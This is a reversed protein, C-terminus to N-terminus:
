KTDARVQYVEPLVDGWWKTYIEEYTGDEVLTALADNFATRLETDGSRFGAGVPGPAFGGDVMEVQEGAATASDHLGSLIGVTSTVADAEGRLLAQLAQPWSQYTLIDVPSVAAKLNDAEVSGQALAVTKGKVDAVSSIDSGEPVLLTQDDAFYITSFDIVKDRDETKVMSAMILDIKGTELNPIRNEATVQVFEVDVGLEEAVAQALDIDFGDPETQGQPIFGFPPTDYKVGIVMTGREQIQKLTDTSASAGKAGSDFGASKVGQDGCAALLMALAMLLVPLSKRIM